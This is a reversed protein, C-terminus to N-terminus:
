FVEKGMKAAVTLNYIGNADSQQRIVYLTDQLQFMTRSPQTMTVTYNINEQKLKCIVASLPQAVTDM